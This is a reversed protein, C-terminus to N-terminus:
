QTASCIAEGFPVPGSTFFFRSRMAVAPHCRFVVLRALEERAPAVAVDEFVAGATHEPAGAVPPADLVLRADHLVDARVAQGYRRNVLHPLVTGLDDHVADVARGHELRDRSARPRQRSVGLDKGIEVAPEVRDIRGRPERLEGVIAIADHVEVYVREVDEVAGAPRHQDVPGIGRTSPGLGVDRLGPQDQGRGVRRILAEDCADATRELLEEGAHHNALEVAVRDHRVESRDGVRAAEVAVNTGSLHLRHIAEDLPLLVAEVCAPQALLLARSSM